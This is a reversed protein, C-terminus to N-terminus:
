FQPGAVLLTPLSQIGVPRPEFGLQVHVVTDKVPNKVKSPGRQIGLRHKFGSCFATLAQCVGHEKFAIIQPGDM